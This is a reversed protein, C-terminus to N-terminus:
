YDKVIPVGAAVRKEPCGPFIKKFVSLAAFEASVIKEEFFSIGNKDWYQVLIVHPLSPTTWADPCYNKLDQIKPDEEGGVYVYGNDYFIRQVFEECRAAKIKQDASKESNPIHLAVSCADYLEGGTMKYFGCSTASLSLAGIAFVVLVARIKRKM